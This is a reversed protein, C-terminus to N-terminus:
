GHIRICAADIDKWYATPQWISIIWLYSKLRSHWKMKTHYRLTSWWKKRKMGLLLGSPTKQNEIPHLQQANNLSNTKTEAKWILSKCGASLEEDWYLVNTSHIELRINATRIWRTTWPSDDAFTARLIFRIGFNTRNTTRFDSANVEVSRLAIYYQTWM